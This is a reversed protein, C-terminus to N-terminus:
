NSQPYLGVTCIIYNLTMTPMMNNHSQNGGVFPHVVSDDLTRKTGGSINNVYGYGTQNPVVVPGLYTLNTPNVVSATTLTSAKVYHTHAPIQATILTEAETGGKAGRIRPTLGPGSGQGVPIRGRLDPLAFNTIGDGGYTTGLLSYLPNYVSISLLSGDCFRWNEPAFTGAFIKIEGVFPDM